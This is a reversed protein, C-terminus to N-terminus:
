KEVYFLFEDLFKSLDSNNSRFRKHKFRFLEVEGFESLMDIMQDKSLLGDESYSILFKPADVNKIIKRFAGRIKVKSCFDSYQDRWPRLGSVGIAEPEDGRAATELIHYNAAYQRKKYPPDLYCLDANVHKSVEEASGQYVVHDTSYGSIFKAPILRIKRIASKSWKSRFHGYTGAINAVINIALVLNHRLLANEIDTIQNNAEWIKIQNSISDIKAANEATFYQRPPVNETPNGSPSYEKYFFGEIPDLDNLTNIADYYGNLGTKEFKPNNSIQLRVIAHYKAFTLIDSAIVKFNALRLAESVTATGCMLDAVVDGTNTFGKIFPLLKSIVINKNGIYRYM